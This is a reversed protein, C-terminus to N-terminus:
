LSCYTLSTEICPKACCQRFQLQNDKPAPNVSLSVMIDDGLKQGKELLCMWTLSKNQLPTKFTKLIIKCIKKVNSHLQTGFHCYDM